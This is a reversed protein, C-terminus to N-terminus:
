IPACNGDSPETCKMWDAALEAYDVLTVYCDENLDGSWYGWNGCNGKGDGIFIEDIAGVYAQNGDDPLWPHVGVYVDTGNGLVYPESKIYAAAAVQNNDWFM